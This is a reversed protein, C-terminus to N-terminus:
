PHKPCHLPVLRGAPRLCTHGGAASDTLYFYESHARFPYTRDGRGPVVIKEGAGILVLENDLQWQEAVARRRRELQTAIGRSDSLHGPKVTSTSM